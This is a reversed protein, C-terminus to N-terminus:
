FNYINLHVNPKLNFHESLDKVIDSYNHAKAKYRDQYLRDLDYGGHIFLFSIKKADLIKDILELYPNLKAIFM